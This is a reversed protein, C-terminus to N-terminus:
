RRPDIVQYARRRRGRRVVGGASALGGAAAVLILARLIPQIGGGGEATSEAVLQGASATLAEHRRHSPGPQPLRSMASASDYAEEQEEEREVANVQSTGSPPTPQVAPLPPPPVIPVLPVSATTIPPQIVFPTPLPSPNPVPHPPTVHVVPTATPTPPTPTPTTPPPPPPAPSPSPSPAPSPAPAPPPSTAPEAAALNTLPTTGCPRQVTGAQVTVNMSYALGGTEITVKTTGANFACLLGSHSDLVPKGKVLFVNRPNTSSPDPEVFNAIDPQSSTFTYEPFLSSSCIEGQCESPITSYQGPSQVNCLSPAGEGECKSGALPRRALGEFLAVQSRRLLTGDAAEMALSGISPTLKVNVPAVGTSSSMGAVNVSVLLFGSDGAFETELGAPPTVYGLTGSGYAPVSRGAANLRYDRNGEPFDFLYASAQGAPGPLECGAPAAAGVLIRTTATGDAAANSAVGALDRDGVVISPRGALKAASLQQALWCQQTSGLERASYDLVVVRVTGGNGASEFSYYAHGAETRSVPTIGSGAAAGLPADFNSFASLFTALTGSRDLDSEAPAAFTPLAGAASGLRSAYAVEEREFDSESLSLSLREENAGEAVSPGTYLFGRVGSIEGARSVAARLWRDPGLGAGSYDACAAACQADGGVAFTATGAETAIPVTSSNPPAATGAGYRMVLATKITATRTGVFTGTEGGVVWGVSGDPSALLALIPDPRIPMDYKTQGVHKDPLPYSGHQEDRWGGATQRVLLGGGSLPYPSTLLPPQGEEPVVTAQEEDTKSELAAQPQPQGPPVVSIIARVLGGERVAALATPYGPSGGAARQWAAGEGQRELVMGEVNRNGEGESLTAIVAGGDPLGAVKQPVATALAEVAQSEVKWGSGSNVIVGGYYRVQGSELKPIKWTVIAEEGAFAISTLNAEEPVGVPLSEPTWERGYSLLLGQKGIAYGRTPKNPDFAIGTFNGRRLNPPEGPDPQWLKTTEQWRWMAGEDGVAYAFGPEPWAVGRLTPTARKGSSRLLFEPEWGQGPIYRAVQGEDGVALAESGTAGVSADPEAAIATLPKKFPVPWSQLSSAQPNRTLQLPPLAGLWGEEPGSLAAGLTAGAEGGVFTLREFATGRLTLLAGEGVGTITRTGFGGAGEPPWAFSRGAANPLEAELPYTCLGAPADVDCWSGTLEAAANEFYVTADRETSGQKLEFDIWVGKETVTLPQGQTRPLITVGGAETGSFRAGLSNAPGLPVQRWTTEAGVQRRFLEVGVGVEHALLWAKEGSTEIAIVEEPAVCGPESELCIPERSWGTGDYALVSNREEPVVYAGTAGGPEETVALMTTGGFLSEGELAESPDPAEYPAGGPNRLVLTELGEEGGIEAFAAIALGGRPTARGVTPGSRFRVKGSGGRPTPPAVTEWGGAETYRALGAGKKATAWVAGAAEQPSAGLFSEAPAGLSPQAVLAGETSAAGAAGLWVVAACLLALVMAFAGLTFRRGDLGSV